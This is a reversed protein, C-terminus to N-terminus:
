CHDFVRVEMMASSAIEQTSARKASEKEALSVVKGIRIPASPRWKGSEEAVARVDSCVLFKEDAKM